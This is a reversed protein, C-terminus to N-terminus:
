IRLPLASCWQAWSELLRYSRGGSLFFIGLFYVTSYSYFISIYNLGVSIYTLSPYPLHHALSVDAIILMIEIDLSM